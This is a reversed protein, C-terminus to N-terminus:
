SCSGRPRRMASRAAISRCCRTPPSTASTRAPTRSFRPATSPWPGPTNYLIRVSRLNYLQGEAILFTVIAESGDPSPQIRTDARTDLYGRDKYFRELATKDAALVDDDLPGKEFIPFYTTTTIASRLEKASFNVNGEFRIDTVKVRDGEIVRFVVIGSDALDKEDIAVRVRYYGKTRYLDEITRASRDIQFRDVPTGALVSVEKLLEQDSLERNGIVQVDQIMPQEAMLYTVVVSGDTMLQVDSDITKFRGLRNIRTLDEKVTQARFPQGAEVRLQNQVLLTTTQDLPITQGPKDPAPQLLRVERVLRGDYAEAPVVPKAQNDPKAAAKSAPQGGPVDQALAPGRGTLLTLAAALLSLSGPRFAAAFPKM